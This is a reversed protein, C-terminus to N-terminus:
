DIGFYTDAASLVVPDGAIITPEPLIAIQGLYNGATPGVNDRWMVAKLTGWAGGASNTIHKVLPGTFPSNRGSGDSAV